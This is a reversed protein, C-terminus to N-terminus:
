IISKVFVILEPLNDLFLTFIAGLVFILVFALVIKVIYVSNIQNPVRSEGRPVSSVQLFFTLLYLNLYNKRLQFLTLPFYNKRCFVYVQLSPM